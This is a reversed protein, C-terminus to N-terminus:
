DCAKNKPGRLLHIKNQAYTCLGVFLPMLLDKRLWETERPFFM